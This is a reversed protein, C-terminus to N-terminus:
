VSGNEDKELIERIHRIRNKFIIFDEVTMNYFNFDRRVLSDYYYQLNYLDNDDLEDHNKTEM